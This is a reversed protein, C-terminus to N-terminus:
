VKGASGQTVGEKHFGLLGYLRNWRHFASDVVVQRPQDNEKVNAMRAARAIRDGCGLFRLFALRFDSYAFQGGDREIAFQADLAFSIVRFLGGSEGVM